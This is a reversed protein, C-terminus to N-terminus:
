STESVELADLVSHTDDVAAAVNHKKIGAPAKVGKLASVDRPKAHTKSFRSFRFETSFKGLMLYDAHIGEIAGEGMAKTIVHNSSYDDTAGTVALEDGDFSQGVLGHPAVLDKEVDYLPKFNVNLICRGDACTRANQITPITKAAAQIRWKSTELIFTRSKVKAKLEPMLIPMHETHTTLAERSGDPSSEKHSLAYLFQNPSTASYELHLYQTENVKVTIYMRQMFSGEVLKQHRGPTSFNSQVFEVNCSLGQASLMNYVGGDTGKFDFRDGHGTLFHPDTDV